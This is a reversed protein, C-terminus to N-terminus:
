YINEEVLKLFSQRLLFSINSEKSWMVKSSLFFNKKHSHSTNVYKMLNDSFFCTMLSVHLAIQKSIIKVPQIIDSYLPFIASCFSIGACSNCLGPFHKTLVVYFFINSFIWNRWFSMELYMYYESCSRCHKLNSDFTQLHLSSRSPNHINRLVELYELCHLLPTPGYMVVGNCDEIYIGMGLANTCIVLKLDSVKTLQSIIHPNKEWKNDRFPVCRCLTQM